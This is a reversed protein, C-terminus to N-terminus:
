QELASTTPLYMIQAILITIVIVNLSEALTYTCKVVGFCQTITCSQNENCENLFVVHASVYIQSFFSHFHQNISQAGPRSRKVYVVPRRIM